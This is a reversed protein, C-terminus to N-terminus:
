TLFMFVWWLMHTPDLQIRFNPNDTIDPPVRRGVGSALAFSARIM